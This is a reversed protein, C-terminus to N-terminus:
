ETIKVHGRWIPAGDLVLDARYVAPALAGIEVTWTLFFLENKRLRLKVPKGQVIARNDLDYLEFAGMVDRKDQPNWQVFLSVSGESRSYTNRQDTPMPVPGGREVRAAFVGSIVHRADPSLPKVFAGRAMLDALTTTASSAAASPFLDSTLISSTRQHRAEPSTGMRYSYGGGLGASMADDGAAIGVWEGRGNFVPSGAAAVGQVRLSSRGSRFSARGVVATEAIVQSGDEATDLVFVRQGVSAGGSARPPIALGHAPVKLIAWGEKRNHTGVESTELARGAGLRVRLASGAEIAAFPAILLNEDLPTVVGVAGVERTTGLRELLAVSKLARQYIDEAPLSAESARSSGRIELAHTGAHEGDVYAEVAWLGTMVNESLGLTWYIGFRRSTAQYETPATLVVKGSPDKWRAECQHRGLAGEWEFYVLIQRDAPLTFLTRPDEVEYRGAQQAGRSGSVSRIL